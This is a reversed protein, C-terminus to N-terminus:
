HLNVAHRLCGPEGGLGAASIRPGPKAGHCRQAPQELPKLLKLHIVSSLQPPRPLVNGGLEADALLGSVFLM